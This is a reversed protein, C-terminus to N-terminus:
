SHSVTGSNSLENESGSESIRRVACDSGRHSKEFCLTNQYKCRLCKRKIIGQLVHHGEIDAPFAILSNADQQNRHSHTYSTLM